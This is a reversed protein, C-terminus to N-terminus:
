EIRNSEIRNLEFSEIRNKTTTTKRKPHSAEEKLTGPAEKISPTSNSKRGVASEGAGPRSLVPDGAETEACQSQLHRQDTVYRLWATCICAENSFM